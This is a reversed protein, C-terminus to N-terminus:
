LGARQTVPQGMKALEGRTKEVRDAFIATPVGVDNLIMAVVYQMSTLVTAMHEGDPFVEVLQKAFAVARRHGENTDVDPLAM